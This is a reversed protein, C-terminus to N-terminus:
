ISGFYISGGDIAIKNRFTYFRRRFEFFKFSYLNCFVFVSNSLGSLVVSTSSSTECTRLISQWLLILIATNSDKTKSSAYNCYTVLLTDYVDCLLINRSSWGSIHTFCKWKHIRCFLLIAIRIISFFFCLHIYILM